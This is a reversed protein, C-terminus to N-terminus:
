IKTRKVLEEVKTICQNHDAIYMEVFDNPDLPVQAEYDYDIFHAKPLIKIIHKKIIKIQRCAQPICIPPAKPIPLNNAKAFSCSAIYVKEVASFIIIVKWRNILFDILQKRNEKSSIM